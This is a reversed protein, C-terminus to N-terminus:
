ANQIEVGCKEVNGQVNMGRLKLSRALRLPIQVTVDRVEITHGKSEDEVTVISLKESPMPLVNMWVPYDVFIHPNEEEYIEDHVHAMHHGKAGCRQCLIHPSVAQVLVKSKTLYLQAETPHPADSNIKQRIELLKTGAYEKKYIESEVRYHLVDKRRNYPIVNRSGIPRTLRVLIIFSGNALYADKELRKLKELPPIQMSEGWQKKTYQEFRPLIDEKKKWFPCMNLAEFGYIMDRPINQGQESERDYQYDCWHRQDSNLVIPEFRLPYKGRSDSYAIFVTGEPVDETKEIKLLSLPLTFLRKM